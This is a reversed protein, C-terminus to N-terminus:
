SARLSGKEWRDRRAERVAPLCKMSEDISELARVMRSIGFYWWWFARVAMFIAVVVCLAIVVDPKSM